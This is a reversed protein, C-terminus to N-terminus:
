SRTRAPRAAGSTPAPWWCPPRRATWAWGCSTRSPTSRWRIWSSWCRPGCGRPWGSCPTSRRMGGVRVHGGGREVHAARAVAAADGRHRRGAHGRQRRVAEDPSPGCRREAAPRGAAGRHRRGAGGAHGARLRHHRRVERLVARRRQHRHQRRHQLDRVVVSGASVVARTRRRGEEGRRQVARAPVGRHPHRPRRHHRADEGDVARDRRGARHGRRVPRQRSGPDGGAGPQRSAWRLVTQVEETRRPRVVALPKGASPDFARDQRYGETVAPDTVVTGDPLEAILAALVDM